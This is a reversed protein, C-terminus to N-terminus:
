KTPHSSPATRQQIRVQIVILDQVPHTRLWQRWVSQVTVASQLSTGECELSLQYMSSDLRLQSSVYSCLSKLPMGQQVWLYPLALQMHSESTQLFVGVRASAAPGAQTQPPNVAAAQQSTGTVPLGSGSAHASTAQPPTKAHGLKAKKLPVLSARFKAEANHREQIGKEVEARPFLKRIMDALMPDFQLKGHQFPQPGLVTQLDTAKCVPCTNKTGGYLVHQDICDRCFSHMCEPATVPDKLVEHCLDCALCAALKEKSRWVLASDDAAAAGTHDQNADKVGLNVQLQGNGPATSTMSVSRGMSSSSTQPVSLVPLEPHDASAAATSSLTPHPSVTDPPVAAGQSAQPNDRKRKKNLAPSQAKPQSCQMSSTSQTPTSSCRHDNAPAGDSPDAAEQESAHGTM